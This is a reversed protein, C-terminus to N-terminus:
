EESIVDGTKPDVTRLPVDTPPRGRGLRHWEGEEDQWEKVGRQAATRKRPPTGDARPRGGKPSADDSEPAEESASTQGSQKEIAERLLNTLASPEPKGKLTMAAHCSDLSKVLNFSAILAQLVIDGDTDVPAADTAKQARQRAHSVEAEVSGPVVGEAPEPSTEAAKRPAGRRRRPKEETSEPEAEKAERRGRRTPREPESEPEDDKPDGFVLDDMGQDVAKVTINKALALDVMLETHDDGEDGWAVILTVEDGDKSGQVLREVLAAGINRAEIMEEAHELVVRNKRTEEDYIAEYPFEAYEDTWELLLKVTPTLYADGAPIIVRIEDADEPYAPLGKADEPGLDLYDKLLDKVNNKSVKGPGAFGLLVKRGM